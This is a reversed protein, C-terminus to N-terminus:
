LGLNPISEIMYNGFWVYVVLAVIPLVVSVLKAFRGVFVRLRQREMHTM